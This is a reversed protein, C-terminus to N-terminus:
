SLLVVVESALRPVGEVAEGVWVLAEEAEEVKRVRSKLLVVTM